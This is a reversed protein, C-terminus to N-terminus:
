DTCFKSSEYHKFQSLSEKTVEWLGSREKFVGLTHLLSLISTLHERAASVAMNLHEDAHNKTLEFGHPAGLFFGFVHLMRLVLKDFTPFTSLRHIQEEFVYCLSGMCEIVPILNSGNSDQEASRLLVERGYSAMEGLFAVETGSEKLVSGQGAHEARTSMNAADRERIMEEGLLLIVPVVIDGLVNVLVGAPVARIHRDLICRSLANSAASRVAVRSDGAADALLQLIPTWCSEWLVPTDSDHDRDAALSPSPAAASGGGAVDVYDEDDSSILVELRSHLHCLLKVAGVSVSVPVRPNGLLPKIAIVIFVPVNALLRPEHLLWAVTEFAKISAYGGASAGVAIVDFVIQWQELSLSTLAQVNRTLLRWMGSSIQCAVDALLSARLTSLQRDRSTSTSPADAHDHDHEDESESSIKCPSVFLKYLDLIQATYADRVMARATIKLLGTVRREFSYTLKKANLLTNRYHLSMLPWLITFRDRNRACVSALMMELWSVSNASVSKAVVVSAGKVSLMKLADTFATAARIPAGPPSTPDDATHDYKVADVDSLFGDAAEATAILTETFLILSEDGLLRTDPVLQAIGCSEVMLKLRSFAAVISAKDEYAPSSMFMSTDKEGRLILEAIQALDAEPVGSESSQATQDSQMSAASLSARQRLTHPQHHHAVFDEYGTDWRSVPLSSYDGAVPEDSAVDSLSSGFIAEGFGQFSLLSSSKKVQTTAARGRKAQLAKVDAAKLRMEFEARCVPPLLDSDGAGEGDDIVMQGPLLTCDRLMVLLLWIAQWCRRGVASPQTVFVTLVVGLAARSSVSTLLLEMM